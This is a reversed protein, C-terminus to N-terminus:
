LKCWTTSELRMAAGACVQLAHTVVATMKSPSHYFGSLLRLSQDVRYCYGEVRRHRCRRPMIGNPPELNAVPPFLHLMSIAGINKQVADETAHNM